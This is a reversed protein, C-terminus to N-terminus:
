STRPPRHRRTKISKRTRSFKGGESATRHRILLMGNHQLTPNLATRRTKCSQSHQLSRMLLSLLRQNSIQQSWSNTEHFITVHFGPEMKSTANATRQM